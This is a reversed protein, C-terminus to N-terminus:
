RAAYRSRQISSHEILAWGQAQLTAQIRDAYAVLSELNPQLHLLVLEADLELGLAYGFSTEFALGRLDDSAGRLRWLEIPPSERHRHDRRTRGPTQNTSRAESMTDIETHAAM